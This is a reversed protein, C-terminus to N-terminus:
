FDLRPNEWLFAGKSACCCIFMHLRSLKCKRYFLRAIYPFAATTEEVASALQSIKGVKRGIRLQLNGKRVHFLYTQHSRSTPGHHRSGTTRSSILSLGPTANVKTGTKFKKTEKAAKQKEPNVDELICNQLIDTNFM